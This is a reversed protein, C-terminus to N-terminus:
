RNLTKSVYERATKKFFSEIQKPSYEEGIYTIGFNKIDEFYILQELFLKEGFSGAFRQKSETIITKLSVKGKKLIFFIDVYDRWTARRGITYAKNSALDNLAFVPPGETSITPYLPPYPYYSCHLHIDPALIVDLFSSNNTVPRILQKGFIKQVKDFLIEPLPKEFFLDFDFSKRHALHLAIASGGSLVGGKIEGIKKFVRQRELDFVLPLVKSINIIM